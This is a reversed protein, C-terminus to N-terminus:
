RIGAEREDFWIESERLHKDIDSQSISAVRDLLLNSFALELVAVRRVMCHLMQQTEDDLKTVTHGTTQTVIQLNQGIM